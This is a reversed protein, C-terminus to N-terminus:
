IVLFMQSKKEHFQTKGWDRQKYTTIIKRSSRYQTQTLIIETIIIYFFYAVLHM